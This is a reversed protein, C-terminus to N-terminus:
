DFHPRVNGCFALPGIPPYKGYRRIPLYTSRLSYRHERNTLSTIPQTHSEQSHPISSAVQFIGTGFSQLGLCNTWRSSSMTSHDKCSALFLNLASTFAASAPPGCRTIRRPCGATTTCAASSYSRSHRASLAAPGLRPSNSTCIGCSSPSNSRSDIEARGSSKHHEQKIRIHWNRIRSASPNVLMVCPPCRM